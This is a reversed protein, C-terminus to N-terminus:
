RCGRARVRVATRQKVNLAVCHVSSCALLCILCSNCATINSATVASAERRGTLVSSLKGAM